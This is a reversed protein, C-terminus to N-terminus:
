NKLSGKNYFLRSSIIAPTKARQDGFYVEKHQALYDKPLFGLGIGKELFPSFTGSTVIGIEEEAMSFIHQRARPSRRSSSVFGVLKRKIIDKKALLAERGIFDKSLDVFRDLGAEFPCISENMEHGYLSYGMELRLIDRAGLGAPEVLENALLGDWVLHIKEWPYYIEYGLEGTYGTRSILVNEGLLNFFDFSYYALKEIGPVLAKMVTRAEPGQLDIKGLQFTLNTLQSESPLHSAIYKEDKEMTAANVVVFWENQACRFVILDDIIGAQENLIMGYRCKMLPIRSLNITFIKELSRDKDNTLVKFEGMHSIDFISAKTRTHRYEALVGKYQVPMEWGGFSVMRASLARHQKDLPSTLLTKITTTDDRSM